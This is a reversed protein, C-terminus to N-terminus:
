QNDKFEKFKQRLREESNEVLDGMGEEAGVIRIRSISCNVMTNFKIGDPGLRNKAVFMNGPTEEQDSKRRQMTIFVDSIMAKQFCEAVHKLTIVEEELSARNTQTVTVVPVRLEGALGRLDEFIVEEEFRKHEYSKRSRMLEGMDVLVIDPAMEKIRLKHINSRLTLATASKTPYYKIVLHGKVEELAKKVLEKNSDLMNVPISSYRADYRKGVSIDDLELTYHVVNFGMKAAHHGWDVLSHSKGVGTPAAITWLEGPGPGGQTVANLEPYPTPVPNRNVKQMRKEFSDNDVYIHGIDREAGSILAKQIDPVIEEFRKNEIHELTKELAMVLSKKRCFDLSEDKIYEADGNLPDNKIKLLYQIIQGQIIENDVKDKVILVLVKFSPFAHYQNYYDFIQKTVEKLHEINFYEINLVEMMQEAFQHDCILAQVIKEEFHKGKNFKQTEM